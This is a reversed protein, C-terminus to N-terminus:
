QPLIIAKEPTVQDRQSERACLTVAPAGVVDAPAYDVIDDQVTRTSKVPLFEPVCCGGPPPSAVCM